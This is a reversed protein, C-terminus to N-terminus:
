KLPTSDNQTQLIVRNWTSHYFHCIDFHTATFVLHCTDVLCRDHQFLSDCRSDIDSDNSPPPTMRHRFSSEIGPGTTFTAFILIHPPLFLTYFYTIQLLPLFLM